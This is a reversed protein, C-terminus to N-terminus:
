RFLGDDAKSSQVATTFDAVSKVAQRDVQTIVDGCALGARGAPSGSRVATIVVGEVGKM